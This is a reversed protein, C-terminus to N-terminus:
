ALLFCLHSSGSFVNDSFAAWGYNLLYISFMVTDILYLQLFCRDAVLWRGMEVEGDWFSEATRDVGGAGRDGRFMEM